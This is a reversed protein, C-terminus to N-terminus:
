PQAWRYCFIINEAVPPAFLVRFTLDPGSIRPPVYLAHTAVATAAPSTTQVAVGEYPAPIVPVRSREKVPLGPVPKLLSTFTIATWDFPRSSTPPLSVSDPLVEASTVLLPSALSLMSPLGSASKLVLVPVPTLPPKLPSTFAM